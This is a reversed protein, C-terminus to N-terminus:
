WTVVLVIDCVVAGLAAFDVLFGREPQLMRTYSVSAAAQCLTVYWAVTQRSCNERLPVAVRAEASGGPMTRARM